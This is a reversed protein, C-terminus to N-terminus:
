KCFSFSADKHIIDIKYESVLPSNENPLESFVLSQQAEPNRGSQKEFIHTSSFPIPHSVWVQQLILLAQM